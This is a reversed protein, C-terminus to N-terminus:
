SCGMGIVRGVHEQPSRGHSLVLSDTQLAPAAPSTPEIGPDPLDRPLPSPLGSWYKQSSFGLSLPAQCAVNWLTAFLPVHSFHSLVPMHVGEQVKKIAIFESMALLDFFPTDTM